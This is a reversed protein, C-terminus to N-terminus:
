KKIKDIEKLAEDDGISEFYARMLERTATEKPRLKLLQRYTQDADDFRKLSLCLEAKALLYTIPRADLRILKDLELLAEDFRHLTTLLTVRFALYSKNEPELRLAENISSMAANIDGTELALTALRLYGEAFNPIRNVLVEYCERAKRIDNVANYCIGLMEYTFNTQQEAEVHDINLNEHQLKGEAYRRSVELHEIAEAFENNQCQIYGLAFNFLPNEPDVALGMECSQRCDDYLQLEFQCRSLDQWSYVDYADVDLAKELVPIAERHCHCDMLLAGMRGLAEADKEDPKQRRESVFQSAKTVYDKVLHRPLHDFLEDIIEVFELALLKDKRLQDFLTEFAQEKDGVAVDIGFRIGIGFPSDEEQKGRILRDAEAFRELRVLIKAEILELYEDGPHQDLGKQCASMAEATEGEDLLDFVIQAVEDTSYYSVKNDALDLMYQYYSRSKKM